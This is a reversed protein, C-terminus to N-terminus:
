RKKEAGKIKGKNISAYFVQEGKKAGYEKKMSKLVKKGKDTLPSM